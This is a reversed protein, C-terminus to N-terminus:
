AGGKALSLIMVVGTVWVSGIVLGIVIWAPKPVRKYWLQEKYVSLWKLPEEGPPVILRRAGGFLKGAQMLRLLVLAVVAGPVLFMLVGM